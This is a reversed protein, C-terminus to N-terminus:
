ISFYDNQFGYYPQTKNFVLKYQPVHQNYHPQVTCTLMPQAQGPLSTISSGVHMTEVSNLKKNGPVPIGNEM